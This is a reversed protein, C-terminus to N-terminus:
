QKFVSLEKDEPTCYPKIRIKMAKEKKVNCKNELVNKVEALICEQSTQKKELCDKTEQKNLSPKCIAACKLGTKVKFSEIYSNALKPPNTLFLELPGPTLKRCAEKGSKVLCSQYKHLEAFYVCAAALAENDTDANKEAVVAGITLFYFSCTILIKKM